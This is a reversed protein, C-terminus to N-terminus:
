TNLQVLKHVNINTVDNCGEVQYVQYTVFRQDVHGTADMAVM